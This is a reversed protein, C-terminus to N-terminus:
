ETINRYSGTFITDNDYVGCIMDRKMFLCHDMKPQIFWTKSIRSENESSKQRKTFDM